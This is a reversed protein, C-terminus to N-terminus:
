RGQMFAGTDVSGMCANTPDEGEELDRIHGCELGGRSPPSLRGLDAKWGTGAGVEPLHTLIHSAM